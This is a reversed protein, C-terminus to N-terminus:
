KYLQNSFPFRDAWSLCIGAMSEPYCVPEISDESYRQLNNNLEVRRPKKNKQVIERIKLFFESVESYENYWKEGREVCGSAKYTQLVMLLQTILEKGETMLNKEDLHIL